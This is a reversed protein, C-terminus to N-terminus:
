RLGQVSIGTPGAKDGSQQSQNSSIMQVTPRGPDGVPSPSPIVGNLSQQLFDQQATHASDMIKYLDDFATPADPNFKDLASKDFFRPDVKQEVGTKAKVDELVKKSLADFKQAFIQQQEQQVFGNWKEPSFDKPLNSYQKVSTELEQIKAAASSKEQLLSDFKTGKDIIAGLQLEDVGAPIRSKLTLLQNAASRMSVVEGETMAVLGDPLGEVAYSQNNFKLLGM